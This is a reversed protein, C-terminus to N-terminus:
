RDAGWEAESVWGIEWLCQAVAEAAQDAAVIRVRARSRPAREICRLEIAADTLARLRVDVPPEHEHAADPVTTARELYLDVGDVRAVAVHSCTGDALTRVVSAIPAFFPNSEALRDYRDCARLWDERVDKASEHM